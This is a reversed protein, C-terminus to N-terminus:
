GKITKEVKGMLKQSTKEILDNYAKQVNGAPDKLDIKFNDTGPKGVYVPPGIDMPALDDMGPYNMSIMTEGNSAIFVLTPNVKIVGKTRGDITVHMGGTTQIASRIHVVVMADLNLERCLTAVNKRIISRAAAWHTKGGGQGSAMSHTIVPLGSVGQYNKGEGLIVKTQIEQASADVARQKVETLKAANMSLSSLVAQAFIADSDLPLQDTDALGMLFKQTEPNEPINVMAKLLPKKSYTRAPVVEWNAVSALDKEYTALAQVLVKARVDLNAPTDEGVRDMVVSLIGIRKTKMVLDKKVYGGGGFCGTLMTTLVVLGLLKGSKGKMAIKREHNITLCCLGM